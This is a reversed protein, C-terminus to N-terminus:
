GDVVADCSCERALCVGRVCRVSSGPVTTHWRTLGASEFGDLFVGDQLIALGWTGHPVGVGQGLITGTSTQITSAILVDMPGMCVQCLMLGHLAGDADLDAARAWWIGLNTGPVPTVAGTSLNLVGLTSTVVYVTGARRALSGLHDYSIAARRTATGSSTDIEYLSPGDVDGLATMWLRAGEGATLGTVEVVEVGLPGVPAGAGSIPDIVLLEDSEHGVGYLRGDADFAIQTVAFGIAGVPVLEGTELDLQYLFSSGRQEGSVTYAIGQAEVVAATMVLLGLVVASGLRMSV